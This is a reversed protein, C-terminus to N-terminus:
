EFLEKISKPRRNQLWIFRSLKLAAINAKQLPTMTQKVAQEFVIRSIKRGNFFVKMRESQGQNVGLYASSDDQAYYICEADPKVLAYTLENDTFYATLTKGQVQNFMQAKDPGTQSVVLAKDPVFIQKINTSDVYMIITDGTIQSTRAWAVPNYMMKVVSDRQSYSLSDCVGQLSDSFVRVHHYGIFCRPATSDADDKTTTDAVPAVVTNLKEGKGKKKKKITTAKPTIVVKPKVSDKLRREPISYFTDARMFISDKGNVVKLVPKIYALTHRTRKNYEAYGSYLTAHQTTDIIVVKGQAKGMGTTKDYDITDAEIYQDDNMMSSRGDFKAIENKSDYTGSTTHLVQKDGIVTSSDYFTILKTASNYGMDKSTITYQPDTVHVNKTFRAFKQGSNYYGEESTVTTGETELTGGNTYVGTKSNLDYTLEECTLKSKTDTLSVNGKMYAIKRNGIYRLYDGEAHTGGPQVIRVNGFGELNNSKIDLYASDCYMINDAQKLQVNGVLINMEGTDTTLHYYHEAIPEIAIKNATDRPKQATAQFCSFVVCGIGLILFRLYYLFAVRPLVM